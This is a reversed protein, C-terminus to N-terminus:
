FLACAEAEVSNYARRAENEEQPLHIQESVPVERSQEDQRAEAGCRMRAGLSRRLDRELRERGSQRLRGRDRVGAIRAQEQGELVSLDDNELIAAHERRRKEVDAGEDGAAALPTEEPQRKMRAIGLVAKEEHVVRVDRAVRDDRPIPESRSVRVDRVRPAAHSEQRNRLGKGVM